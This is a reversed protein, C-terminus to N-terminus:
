LFLTLLFGAVCVAIMRLSTASWRVEVGAMSGAEAARDRPRWRRRIAVAAAGADSRLGASSPIEDTWDSFGLTRRDAETLRAAGIRGTAPAAWSRHQRGDVTRVTLAYQTGLEALAAFPIYVDRLVNRLLVGDPWVMVRPRGFVAYVVSSSVAITPAARVAEFWGAHLEALVIAIAVTGWALCVAFGTWPRFVFEAGTSNPHTGGRATRMVGSHCWHCTRAVVKVWVTERVPLRESGTRRAASDSV